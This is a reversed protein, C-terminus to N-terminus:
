RHEVVYSALTLLGLSSSLYYVFPRLDLVGRAFMEFHEFTQLYDVVPVIELSFMEPVLPVEAFLRGSVIVIFVGTFTLMGAVLQSRTLSSALIGISIFCAGSLLIFLLSGVASSFEIISGGLNSQPIIFHTLVPFALTLMWFASFAIYASLFKSLVVQISYIPTTMLTELTGLRKEEALSRMTLLPVVFLNPIWFIRYFAVMPLEAKSIESYEKIIIWYFLVMPVLFVVGAVYTSSALWQHKLENKVLVITKSV